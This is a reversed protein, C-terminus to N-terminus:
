SKKTWTRFKKNGKLKFTKEVYPSLPVIKEIRAKKMQGGWVMKHSMLGLGGRAFLLWGDEGSAPRM